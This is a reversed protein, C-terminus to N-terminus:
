LGIRWNYLGLVAAANSYGGGGYDYGGGGGYGGYDYGGGGGYGGTDPPPPEELGLGPNNEESPGGYPQNFTGGYGGGPHQTGGSGLSPQSTVTVPGSWEGAEGATSGFSGYMTEDGPRGQNSPFNSGTATAANFADIATAMPAGFANVGAPTYDGPGSKFGSVASFPDAGGYMGYGIRPTVVPPAVNQVAYKANAPNNYVQQNYPVPQTIKPATVGSGPLTWPQNYNPTQVPQTKVKPVTAKTIM